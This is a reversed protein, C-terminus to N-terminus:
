GQCLDAASFCDVSVFARLGELQRCNGVDSASLCKVLYQVALSMVNALPHSSRTWDCSADNQPCDVTVIYARVNDPNRESWRWRCRVSFPLDPFNDSSEGDVVAINIACLLV